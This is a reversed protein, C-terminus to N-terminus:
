IKLAACSGVPDLVRRYIAITRRANEPWSFAAAHRQGEQKRLQWRDPATKSERLIQAVTETWDQIDATASYVASSGGAERLAAIDSAIVVCGCAMAEIVPLGFGEADSTQLLVAANRYAAALHEKTLGEVFTIRDLVGLEAALQLQEATLAAGVRLLLLEPFQQLLRSFVRLLVDIRKRRITSGVHLLYTRGHLSELGKPLGTPAPQSDALFVPDVGPPIVTVQREPFLKHALVQSRTAASPCIVHACQQFGHLSKRAMQRFWRPRPERDPELLCRFTDLDHCTVVTSGRPLALCLQGYSHDILHFLDFRAARQKLWRPYDFFRNILRDANWLAGTGRRFPLRSFRTRLPPRLQEVSVAAAYGSQYCASLMDGFLDMSPWGEELMDCVLAVRM